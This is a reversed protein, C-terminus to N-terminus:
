DCAAVEKPDRYNVETLVVLYNDVKYYDQYIIENIETM